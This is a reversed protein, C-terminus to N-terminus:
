SLCLRRACILTCRTHTHTHTHSHTHTHIIRVSSHKGKRSAAAPFSPVAVGEAGSGRHNFEPVTVGSSMRSHAEASAVQTHPTQTHRHTQTHMPAHTRAHMHADSGTRPAHKERRLNLCGSRLESGCSHSCLLRVIIVCKCCNFFPWSARAYRLSPNRTARGGSALSVCTPLHKEYASCCGVAACVCSSGRCTYM